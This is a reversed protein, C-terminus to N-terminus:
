YYIKEGNAEALLIKTQEEPTYKALRAERTLKRRDNQDRDKKIPYIIPTTPLIREFDSDPTWKFCNLGLKALSTLIKHQERKLMEGKYAKVEIFIIEGKSNICAFDPWGKHLVEWGEKELKERLQEEASKLPKNYSM